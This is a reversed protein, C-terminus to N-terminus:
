IGLSILLIYVYNYFLDYSFYTIYILYVTINLVSVINETTFQRIALLYYTMKHSTIFLKCHEGANQILQKLSLCCEYSNPDALKELSASATAEGNTDNKVVCQLSNAISPLNETEIRVKAKSCYFVHM